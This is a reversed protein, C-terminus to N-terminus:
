DFPQQNSDLRPLEQSPGPDQDPAKGTELWELPVGTRMSYAILTIKRPTVRDNEADSITKQAVGIETAFERTTMGVLQRAKRLRDGQTFEPIRGATQTSM